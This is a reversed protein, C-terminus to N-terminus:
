GKEFYIQQADFIRRIRVFRLLFSLLIIPESYCVLLYGSIESITQMGSSCQKNTWCVEANIMVLMLLVITTMNGFLFLSLLLPSKIKLPQIERRRAVFFLLVGIIAVSITGFVVTLTADGNWNSTSSAKLQVNTLIEIEGQALDISPIM